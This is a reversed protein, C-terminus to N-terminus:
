REMPTTNNNPIPGDKVTFAFNNFYHVAGSQLIIRLQHNDQPALTHLLIQNALNIRELNSNNQIIEEISSTGSWNTEPDYPNCGDEYFPSFDDILNNGSIRYNHLNYWADAPNSTNFVKEVLKFNTSDAQILKFDHRQGSMSNDYRFGTIPRNQPISIGLHNSGYWDLFRQGVPHNNFVPVQDRVPAHTYLETENTKDLGTINNDKMSCGTTVGL